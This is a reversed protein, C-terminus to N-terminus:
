IPESPSPSPSPTPRTAWSSPIKGEATGKDYAKAMRQAPLDKPGQAGKSLRWTGSGSDLEVPRNSVDRWQRAGPPKGPALKVAFDVSESFGVVDRGELAPMKAEGDLVSSAAWFDKDAVGWDEPINMNGVM